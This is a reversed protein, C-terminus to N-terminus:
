RAEVRVLRWGKAVWTLHHCVPFVAEDYRPGGDPGREIQGTRLDISERRYRGHHVHKLLAPVSPGDYGPWCGYPLKETV